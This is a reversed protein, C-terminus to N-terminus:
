GVPNWLLMVIDFSQTMREMLEVAMDLVVPLAVLVKSCLDKKAMSFVLGSFEKM